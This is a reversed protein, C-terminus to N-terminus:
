KYEKRYLDIPIIIYIHEGSIDINKIHSREIKINSGNRKVIVYANNEEVISEVKIKVYEPKRVPQENIIYIDKHGAIAGIPLGILAFPIAFGLGFGLAGEIERRPTFDPGFGRQHDPDTEAIGIIAGITFGSL